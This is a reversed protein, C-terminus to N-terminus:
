RYRKKQIFKENIFFVISIIMILMIALASAMNPKLIVDGSILAGIRIPIVNYNSTMIGFVTAYAGIANTFLIITTGIISSKLIPLGIRLWFDKKTGGLLSCAEKWNENLADLAPYLLLTGLPIQFYTYALILGAQTYINFESIGIKQLILTIAGNTGLIVILAFALPLGSFNSMMNSYLLVVSRIKTNLRSISYALQFSIMIGLISSILSIKISNMFSQKYFKSGLIYIYNYLSYTSSGDEKLSGMVVSAIPVILVLLAIIGLPLLLLGYKLREKEQQNM